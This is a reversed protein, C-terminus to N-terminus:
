EMNLNYKKNVRTLFRPLFSIVDNPMNDMFDWNEVVQHLDGTYPVLREMAIWIALERNFRDLKNCKSWGLYIGDSTQLALVIGLKTGRTLLHGSQTFRPNRLYNYILVGDQLRQKISLANAIRKQLGYLTPATFVNKELGNIIDKSSLNVELYM